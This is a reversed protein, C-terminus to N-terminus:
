PPPSRARCGPARVHPLCVLFRSFESPDEPRPQAFLAQLVTNSRAATRGEQLRHSFTMGCGCGMEQPLYEWPIGTRLVFIIGTLAKRDDVPPRGGKPRPPRRPILPKIIEWLKDPLLPKAM